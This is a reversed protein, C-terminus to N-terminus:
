QTALSLSLCGASPRPQCLAAMIHHSVSGQTGVNEIAEVASRSLKAPNDMSWIVTHSDLLLKM